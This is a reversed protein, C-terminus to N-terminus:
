QVSAKPAVSVGRVGNKEIAQAVLGSAKVDEIFERLYKAGADRGKPTGIAQDVATFRGDLVRSGPLKEADTVLRPKLGALAELKDAVFLEFSADVSPARMLRARQLSRSLVLDYASKASVAIRVGERDVDAVTRLPSGAPVLYTAEIELYAATFTIEGAREPEAALFAVDWAGTKVGEAMKGAADYGVLEVTVGVRRGLERALDVAVGRADGSTPVKTALLVNGFNIGVRLKGTPALDSRAAPSILSITTCSTLLVLSALGIAIKIMM